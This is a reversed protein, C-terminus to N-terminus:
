PKVSCGLHLIGVVAGSAHDHSTVFGGLINHDVAVAKQKLPLEKNMTTRLKEMKEFAGDTDIFDMCFARPERGTCYGLLQERGNVHYQYGRHLKCEGLYRWCAQDM